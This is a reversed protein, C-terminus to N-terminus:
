PQPGFFETPDDERGPRVARATLWLAAMGVVGIVIFGLCLGGFIALFTM